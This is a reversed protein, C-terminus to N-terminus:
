PFGWMRKSQLPEAAVGSLLYKICVVACIGLNPARTKQAPCTTRRKSFGSAISPCRYMRMYGLHTLRPVGVVALTKNPLENWYRCRWPQPGASQEMGDDSM